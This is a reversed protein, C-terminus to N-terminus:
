LQGSRNFFLNSKAKSALKNLESQLELMTNKGLKIFSYSIISEDDNETISDVRGKPLKQELFDLIKQKKIRAEKAPLTIILMGDNLRGKILRTSSKLVLLALVAVTLIIGLFFMNFTACCLSSAIVLMIFGIEEPEKIPTRFRVISLAGLLGLSLPLSFQICIFIATVSIGLLPFARHVQSGTARSSYFRNYLFAVFLSSLLSIIMVAFFALLGIDEMKQSGFGGLTTIWKEWDPEM